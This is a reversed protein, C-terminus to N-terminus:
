ENDDEKKPCAAMLIDVKKKLEEAETRFKYRESNADNYRKDLEDVKNRLFEVTGVEDTARIFAKENILEFDIDSEKEVAKLDKGYGSKEVPVLKSFIDLAEALPADIVLEGWSRFMVYKM